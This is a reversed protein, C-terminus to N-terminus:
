KKGVLEEIKAWTNPGVLGDPNLGHAKQFAAVKVKIEDSYGMLVPAREAIVQPEQHASVTKMIRLLAPAARLLNGVGGFQAIIQEIDKSNQGLVDFVTGLNVM